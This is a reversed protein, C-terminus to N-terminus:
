KQKKYKESFRRHLEKVLAYDREQRDLMWSVLEKSEKMINDFSDKPQGSPLDESTDEPDIQSDLDNFNGM